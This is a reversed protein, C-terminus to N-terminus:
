PKDRRRSWERISQRLITANVKALRAEIGMIPRFPTITVTAVTATTVTVARSSNCSGGLGKGVLADPLM